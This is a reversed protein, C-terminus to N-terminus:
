LFHYYSHKLHFKPTKNVKETKSLLTTLSTRQLIIVNSCLSSPPSTAFKPCLAGLLAFVSESDWLFFQSQLLLLSPVHPWVKYFASKKDMTLVKSKSTHVPFDNSESVFTDDDPTSKLLTIRHQSLATSLWPSGCPSKDPLDRLLGSSIRHHTVSSSGGPLCQALFACSM